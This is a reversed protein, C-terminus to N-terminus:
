LELVNTGLYKSGLLSGRQCDTVFCLNYHGFNVFFLGNCLFHENYCIWGLQQRDTALTSLLVVSDVQINGLVSLCFACVCTHFICTFCLQNRSKVYFLIFVYVKLLEYIYILLCHFLFCIFLFLTDGGILFYMLLWFFFFFHLYVIFCRSVIQIVGCAGFCLFSFVCHLVQICGLYSWLSWFM